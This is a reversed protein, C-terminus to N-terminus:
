RSPSRYFSGNSTAPLRMSAASPVKSQCFVVQVVWNEPVCRSKMLALSDTFRSTVGLFSSGVSFLLAMDGSSDDSGHGFLLWSLKEVHDVDPYSVLDIKPKRATGVVKVGAQVALGTRLAEIDLIPNAIDGQFTITGRRLQLRQGYQEIAGGRTSLAGVGTLAGDAMSVRLQGVLGSNVGYGTLYFRRGLDLDLDITIDTPAEVDDDNLTEGARLIVIDGDITPIGGAYGSQVM